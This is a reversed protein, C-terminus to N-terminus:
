LKSGHFYGQLENIKLVIFEFVMTDTKWSIHASEIKNRPINIKNYKKDYKMSIKVLEAQSKMDFACSFGALRDTKLDMLLYFSRCIQGDYSWNKLSLGYWVNNEVSNLAQTTEKNPFAFYKQGSFLAKLEDLTMGWTVPVSFGPIGQVIDKDAVDDGGDKKEECGFGVIVWCIVLVAIFKGNWKGRLKAEKM